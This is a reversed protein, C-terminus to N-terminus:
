QKKGNSGTSFTTPSTEFTFVNNKMQVDALRGSPGIVMREIEGTKRPITFNYTPYVWPWDDLVVRDIEMEKPKEGRMIRLPIYFLEASGDKYEVLVEVPMMMDGFRKLEVMTNEGTGYVSNFGYDITKTSGVWYQLYWDLEMDAVKEMVRNFDNANPHKFKWIEYYRKMGKQLNEEGIIYGLQALFVAGKSYAATSYARNTKFHDAHTTMPEEKGSEVINYYSAYSGAHPSYQQRRNGFLERMVIASAYSTFGEDMWPYLSENTGLVMQYWSHVLEHVTVGVLSTLSRRGTILTAMPYEMGGDGGQIVSYKEYPYKGFRSNMIEFARATYEPLQEWNTTTATEEVYFFHLVLGDPGEATTHTYDTDAAWVFDHVNEAKFHWTLKDGKPRKVPQGPGTYGHGIEHPNQLYGTAAITYASDMRIKVDFNGWVGHFERAIYPNAHWGMYDYEALKPYWQAMSFDIEEESDRGSRRIQLPVQGNFGMKLATSKGPLLPEALVVELITGAEEFNVEKGDQELSNVRLYGTEEPSLNFIREGVRRDPDEITRSRVDMMSGPQFANFYLHYFVRNLTDPSNNTYVLQQNGAFQHKEADMDIEMTYAAHQQWRQQQAYAGTVVLLSGFFFATLFLKM